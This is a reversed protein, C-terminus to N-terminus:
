ESDPAEHDNWLASDRARKGTLPHARGLIANSVSGKHGGRKYNDGM